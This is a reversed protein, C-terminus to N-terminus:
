RVRRNTSTLPVCVDPRRAFLGREYLRKSATVRSVRTGTAAYLYHSLQSTTAGRNLRAIISLHPDKRTKPARPRGQGPKREISGTDQFQKWLKCM